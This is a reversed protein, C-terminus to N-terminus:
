ASRGLIAAVEAVHPPQLITYHDAAVEHVACQRALDPWPAPGSQVARIFTIANDYFGPRYASFLRMNQAFVAASERLVTVDSRTWEARQSAALQWAEDVTRIASQELVYRVLKSASGTAQRLIDGAFLRLMERDAHEGPEGIHTDILTVTSPNGLLRAMELAILGGFSWGALAYCSHPHTSLLREVYHAALEELNQFTALAPLPPAQIALITRDNGLYATLNLYSLINGGIAHILVIPVNDETSRRLQVVSSNRSAVGASELEAALGALDPARFFAALPLEVGLLTRIRSVVQTARLSHGGLEFFNDHRGIREIGLLQKWVGAMIEESGPRPAEWARSDRAPRPLAKRDVKGNASLPLAELEVFRAPIMYEPLRRALHARMEHPQGVVYGVLVPAVGLDERLSVVADRVGPTERMVAEIEGLEIRFGRLKVQQDARGVLELEGSARRRVLDGSRYLRAGAGGFPDPVFREATLTPRNWYGRAVGAGGIYLEGTVGAPVPEMQDDLVYCQTNAVPQGLSPLGEGDSSVVGWTTIVTTETPGYNNSLKWRTTQHPRKTLREGGTFLTRLEADEPWDLELLQEALATPAFSVTVCQQVLWDRLREPDRRIDDDPIALSAGRSLFPWLEVVAADFGLGAVYAGRDSPQVDYAERYWRVVNALSAHSIMVGKPRGTSGSTYIVYALQEPVVATRMPEASEHSWALSREQGILLAAGSDEVLYRIREAPYAPDIPLYAAGAKLVGLLVVIQLASRELCVGVVNEASVGQRQLYRAIRNSEQDLQQYSWATDGDILAVTDPQAVAITAVMQPLLQDEAWQRETRNSEVLLTNRESADMIQVSEVPLGPEAVIARLLREWHAAMQAITAQDFLDIRYEFSGALGDDRQEVGLTLDFKTTQLEGEEIQFRTSGLQGAPLAGQMAFVVQVVPAYALSRQPALEEVLREFPVEQHAYAELTTEKVRDLLELFSPGGSLDTRLALTNVFFGILGELEMRNRGAIPTGVVIDRQGSYRSLLAQFGALLVMFLTAGRERALKRLGATLERDLAVRWVAGSLGQVPPRPRDTPLELLAPSGMLRQRWYSLEGELREGQLWQRQWSAYDGYQVPLPELGGERAEEYSRSLEELLIGMSWGDIVIHHIAILFLHDEEALRILTWRV